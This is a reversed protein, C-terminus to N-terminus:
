LEAVLEWIVSERSVFRGHPGLTLYFPAIDGPLLVVMPTRDYEEDEDFLAPDIPLKRYRGHIVCTKGTDLKVKKTPKTGVPSRPLGAFSVPPWIDPRDFRRIWLDSTCRNFRLEGDISGSGMSGYKANRLPRIAANARVYEESPLQDIPGLQPTSGARIVFGSSSREPDLGFHKCYEAFAKPGGLKETLLDSVYTLWNVGKMGDQAHKRDTVISEVQLSRYRRAVDLVEPEWTVAQETSIVGLGASGHFPTLKETCLNLLSDLINKKESDFADLAPVHFQLCSLFQEQWARETMCSIAYDGVGDPDLGSSSYWAIADDEDLSKMYDRIAPFTKKALDVPQWSEPDCGWTLKHGYVAEFAEFCEALALRKQVTHGGWFYFTAVFGVTLIVQDNDGDIYEFDSRRSEVEEFEVSVTM